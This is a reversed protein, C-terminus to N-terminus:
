CELHQWSCRSMVQYNRFWIRNEAITFTFVHDVFPQSKPHYRPTAFTQLLWVCHDSKKFKFIWINLRRLKWVFLVYRFILFMKVWRTHEGSHLAGETFRLTARQWIETPFFVPFSHSWNEILQLSILICTKPRKDFCSSIRWGKQLSHIIWTMKLLDSASM